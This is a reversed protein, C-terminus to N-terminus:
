NGEMFKELEKTCDACLEFDWDSYSYGNYNGNRLKLVTFRRFGKINATWGLYQLERKCRDCIRTKIVAMKKNM